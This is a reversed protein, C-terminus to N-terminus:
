TPRTAARPSRCNAARRHHLRGDRQVRGAAPPEDHGPPCRGTAPKNIRRHDAVDSAPALGFVVRVGIRVDHGYGDPGSGAALRFSGSAPLVVHGAGAAAGVIALRARRRGEVSGPGGRGPRRTTPAPGPRRSSRPRARGPRRPMAPRRRTALVPVPPHSAGSRPGPQVLLLLPQSGEPRAASGAPGAPGAAGGLRVRLWGLRVRARGRGWGGQPPTSPQSPETHDPRDAGGSGAASRPAARRVPTRPRRTEAAQDGDASLGALERGAGADAAPGGRSAGALGIGALGTRALSIRALGVGALGVGAVGIRAIRVGALGARAIGIRAAGIRSGSAVVGVARHGRLRGRFRARARGAAALRRHDDARGRQRGAPRGARPPAARRHGPRACGGDTGRARGRQMIASM